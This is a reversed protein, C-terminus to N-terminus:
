GIEIPKREEGPKERWHQPLLERIRSKPWGSGLKILVDELWEKPDIRQLACTRLLGYLIAANRAAAHSGAFLWTRRGVALSRIQLECLNNDLDIRGDEVFRTLAIWHNLPYKAASVLESKPNESRVVKDLWAKIRALVPVSSTQRLECREQYTLGRADALDEIRYLKGILEVARMARPDSDSLKWFRRRVHAWCGLETATAVKGNYVRDFVSAADAQVYGSRKALAAWPGEKGTGTETYRFCVIGRDGVYSWMSGRVIGDEHDRDLVRLGSADTQIIHSNQLEKWSEENLPELDTAVRAVWAALTSLAIDVGSRRCVTRFRNLPVHDEYKSVVIQSLLGPGALSKEWVKDGTPATVIGGESCKKCAMKEREYRLVKFHLPELELVESDDHGIVERAEGCCPCTREAEPVPILVPERRLSAPLPNRGPHVPNSEAAKKAEELAALEAAVSDDQKRAEEIAKAEAAAAAEAAEDHVTAATEAANEEANETSEAAAAKAAERIRNRESSRSPPNEILALRTALDEVTSLLAEVADDARGAALLTKAEERLPAVARTVSKKIRAQRKDERKSM